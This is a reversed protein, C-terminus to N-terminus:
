HIEPHMALKEGNAFLSDFKTKFRHTITDVRTIFSFDIEEISSFVLLFIVDDFLFFNQNLQHTFRIKLRGSQLWNKVQENKFWSGDM